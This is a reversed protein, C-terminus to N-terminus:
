FKNLCKKLSLWGLEQPAHKTLGIEISGAWKDVIRDIRIEFMEDTQIPRNTLVVANNFDDMASPSVSSWM